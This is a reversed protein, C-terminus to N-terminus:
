NIGGRCQAEQRKIEKAVAEEDDALITTRDSFHYRCNSDLGGSWSSGTALLNNKHRTIVRCVKKGTEPDEQCDVGKNEGGLLFDKIGM